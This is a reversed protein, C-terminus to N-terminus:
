VEIVGGSYVKGNVRDVIEVIRVKRVSIGKLLNESLYETLKQEFEKKTKECFTNANLLAVRQNHNFDYLCKQVDAYASNEIRSEEDVAFQQEEDYSFVFVIVYTLNRVKGTKSTIGFVRDITIEENRKM